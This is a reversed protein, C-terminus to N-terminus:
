KAQDSLLGKNRRRSCHRVSLADKEKSRQRSLLRRDPVINEVKQV